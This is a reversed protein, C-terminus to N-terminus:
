VNFNVLYNYIEENVVGTMLLFDLHIDHEMYKEKLVKPNAGLNVLYKIMKLKTEYFNERSNGIGSNEYVVKSLPFDYSPSYKENKMRSNILSKVDFQKSYNEVLWEFSTLSVGIHVVDFIRHMFDEQQSVTLPCIEDTFSVPINEPTVNEKNNEVITMIINCIILVFFYEIKVSEM